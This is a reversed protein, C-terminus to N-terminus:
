CGRLLGLFKVDFGAGIAACEDIGRVRQVNKGHNERRPRLHGRVLERPSRWRKHRHAMGRYAAKLDSGKIENELEPPWYVWDVQEQTPLCTIDANPPSWPPFM